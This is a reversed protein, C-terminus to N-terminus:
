DHVRRSHDHSSIDLMGVVKIEPANNNENQM